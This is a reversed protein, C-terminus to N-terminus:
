EKLTDKAAKILTPKLRPYDIKAFLATAYERHYFNPAIVNVGRSLEKMRYPSQKEDFIIINGGEETIANLNDSKKLEAFSQAQVEIVSKKAELLTAALVGSNRVLASFHNAKGGLTIVANDVEATFENTNENIGVRLYGYNEARVYTLNKCYTDATPWRSPIALPPLTIILTDGHSNVRVHQLLNSEISLQISKCNHNRYLKSITMDIPGSLVLRSFPPVDRVRSIIDGNGSVIAEDACALSALAVLILPWIRHKLTSM